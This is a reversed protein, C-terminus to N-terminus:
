LSYNDMTFHIILFGLGFGGFTIVAFLIRVITPDVRLYSAIGSCIGGLMKDNENRYLRGRPEATSQGTSSYTQKEGALQSHVSANRIYINCGDDITHTARLIKFSFFCTYM